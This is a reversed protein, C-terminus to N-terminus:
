SQWAGPRAPRTTAVDVWWCCLGGLIMALTGLTWSGVEAVWGAAGTGLATVLHTSAVVLGYAPILGIWWWHGHRRALGWVVLVLLPAAQGSIDFLVGYTRWLDDSPLLLLAPVLMTALLVTLAIGAWTRRRADRARLLVTPALTAAFRLPVLWLSTEFSVRGAQLWALLGYTLLWAGLTAATLAIEGAPDAPRRTLAAEVAETRSM